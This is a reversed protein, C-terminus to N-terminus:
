IWWRLVAKGPIKRDMLDRAVEGVKEMPEEITIRPKLKRESVLKVLRSLGVSAPESGLENFLLFGYLKARGARMFGWADFSTEQNTSNGFSVCIGDRELLQLCNALVKGGVSEAILRYPGFDCAAGGDESVVVEDADSKMVIDRHEERRIMGVVHAGMMKALQCAFIGVGGNAGTVLVNRGLLGTGKELAYLATLGAVPLTAAQEFLVNEPLEAIANTPVAVMEAWAGTPVFGVVRSGEKPGTGDAAAQEVIGALDWGISHGAEMSQAYRVEGQNMSIAAVKVLAENRIPTPTEVDHIAVHGPANPDVVAAHMKSM